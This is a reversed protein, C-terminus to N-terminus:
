RVEYRHLEGAADLYYFRFSPEKIQDLEAEALQYFGLEASLLGIIQRRGPASATDCLYVRQFRGRQRALTRLAGELRRDPLGAGLVVVACCQGRHRRVVRVAALWLLAVGGVGLLGALLCLLM